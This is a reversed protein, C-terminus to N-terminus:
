WLFRLVLQMSRSDRDRFVKGFREGDTIIGDPNFFQTHNFLNFIELRTELRRNEGLPTAKILSFDWNNLGPGSFFQRSATGFRGYEAIPVSRFSAPDFYLLNNKRPNFIRIPAVQDPTDATEFDATGGTLSADSFDQLRIPFGSQFTTIGSLQWGNLLPHSRKGLLRALPLEYQYFFVLRHRADFQSLSRGLRFDSPNLIQEFSSANDISKSYTYSLEWNANGTYNKRLGVQLSNYHSNAITDQTFISSFFPQGNFNVDRFRRTGASNSYATDEGFPGCGPIDKCLSPIGPNLDYTALLRHSQSGVYALSLLWNQKIQRQINLSYQISYQPRLNPNIQGFIVTPAFRTFDVLDGPQAPLVPFPNPLQTGDRLIFPHSFTPAFTSSSGGFPPQGTFQELM